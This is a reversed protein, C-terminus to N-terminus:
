DCAGRGDEEQHGDERRRERPQRLRLVRQREEPWQETGLRSDGSQRKSDRDKHHLADTVLTIGVVAGVTLIYTPGSGLPHKPAAKSRGGDCCRHEDAVAQGAPGRCHKVGRLAKGLRVNTATAANNPFRTSGPM